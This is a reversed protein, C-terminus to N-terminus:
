RGRRGLACTPVCLAEGTAALHAAIENSMRAARQFEVQNNIGAFIVFVLATGLVVNRLPTFWGFATLLMLAPFFNGAYLFTIEGYVSYVALQFVLYAAIPIAVAWRTRDRWAGWIGAGLL